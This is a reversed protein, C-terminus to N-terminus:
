VNVGMPAPGGQTAQQVPPPGSPQWQSAAPAQQQGGVTAVRAQARQQEFQNATVLQEPTAPALKWPPSQGPKPEGRYLTGALANGVHDRLQSQLIRPFILAGIEERSSGDLAFANVKVADTPGFKTSINHEVGTVEIYLLTGIYQELEIGPPESVPQVM